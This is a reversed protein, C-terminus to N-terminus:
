RLDPAAGGARPQKRGHGAPCSFPYETEEKLIKSFEHELHNFFDRDFVDDAHVVYVNPHDGRLDIVLFEKLHPFLLLNVDGRSLEGSGHEFLEELLM